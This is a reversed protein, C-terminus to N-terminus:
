VYYLDDDYESIYGIFEDYFERRDDYLYEDKIYDADEEYVPYFWKCARGRDRYPCIGYQCMNCATSKNEYDGIM